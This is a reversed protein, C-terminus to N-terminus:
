DYLGARDNMVIQRLDAYTLGLGNEDGKLIGKEVIKKVSERAWKPMNDDIYNYIMPNKLNHVETTLVKVTETLEKIEQKLEQYQTMTLDESEEGVVIDEESKVDKVDNGIIGKCIANAIAYVGISKYKDYDTKNDVFCVEVLVAPANTNKVVYIWSGDKVGRNKFGLSSIKEVIDSAHAKDVGGYTYAEVGHGGGANLHISLFMDLKVSNALSCIQRLNESMSSAYDDTCDVVKHGANRLIEMVKYGILRTENSENLLGVAGCGPTGSVTHGCNVGIVM